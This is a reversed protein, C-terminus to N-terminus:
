MQVNSSINNNKSLNGKMFDVLIQKIFEESIGEFKYKIYDFVSKITIMEDNVKNILMGTEHYEGGQKYTGKTPEYNQNLFGSIKGVMRERNNDEFISDIIVGVQQETIKIRKGM